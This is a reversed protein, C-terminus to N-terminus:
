FMSGSFEQFPGLLQYVFVWGLPGSAYRPGRPGNRSGPGVAGGGLGSAAMTHGVSVGDRMAAFRVEDQFRRAAALKLEMDRYVSPDMNSYALVRPDDSLQTWPRKKPQITVGRGIVDELASVPRLGVSTYRASRTM